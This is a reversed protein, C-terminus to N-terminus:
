QQGGDKPALRLRGAVIDRAVDSASRGVAFAHARLRVFADDLGVGLQVSLMGTAQHVEAHYSAGTRTADLSGDAAQGHQDALLSGAAADALTLALSLQADSLPGPRDRYLDIAGIRIAGLQLPLAFLARAGAASAERTFQPWPSRAVYAPEDLDAIVCVTGRHGAQTMISIGAGTVELTRVAVNCIALPSGPGADDSPPVGGRRASM